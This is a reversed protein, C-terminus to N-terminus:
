SKAVIRCFTGFPWPVSTDFELTRSRPHAERLRQHYPTLKKTRYQFRKRVGDKETWGETVYFISSTVAKM